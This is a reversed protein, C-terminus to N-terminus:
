KSEKVDSWDVKGNSAAGNPNFPTVNLPTEARSLNYLELASKAKESVDIDETIAIESVYKEIWKEDKVGLKKAESKLDKKRMSLTKERKEAEFQNKVEELQRKLESLVDDDGTSSSTTQTQTQTEPKRGESKYSKVFDAKDKEVNANVTNLIPTVCSIFNSLESEENALLPILTELNENITRDSLHLTRGSKMLEAKLEEFAQQKTFKM